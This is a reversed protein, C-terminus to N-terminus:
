AIQGMTRGGLVHLHLHDVLQGADAGQNIVLRYGGESLGSESALKGAVTVMHGLLSEDQERLTEIGEMHDKPVVLIHVPTVPSIDAFAVVRDDSYAQASPM